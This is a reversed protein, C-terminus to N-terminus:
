LPRRRFGWICLYHTCLDGIKHANLTIQTRVFSLSTIARSRVHFIHITCLECKERSQSCCLAQADERLLWIESRCIDTEMAGIDLGQDGEGNSAEVGGLAEPTTTSCSECALEGLGKWVGWSGRKRM